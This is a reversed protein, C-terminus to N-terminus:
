LVLPRIRKYEGALQGADVVVAERGLPPPYALVPAIRLSGAPCM